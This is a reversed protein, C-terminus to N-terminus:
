YLIYVFLYINKSWPRANEGVSRNEREGTRRSVVGRGVVVGYPRGGVNNPKECLRWSVVGHGPLKFTNKFERAMAM